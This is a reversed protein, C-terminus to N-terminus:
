STDIRWRSSVSQSASKGSHTTIISMAPTIGIGSAVLVLNDYDIATSFPSAFPGAVYCPRSTPDLVTQAAAVVVCRWAWSLDASAPLLFRM